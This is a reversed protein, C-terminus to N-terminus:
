SAAVTATDRSDTCLVLHSPVRFQFTSGQGVESKFAVTYDLRQAIASVIALGLGTGPRKTGDGARAQSFPKFLMRNQDESIGPGQDTVSIVIGDETGSIGIRVSAGKPSYKIANSAFNTVIQAIREPNGMVVANQLDSEIDLQVDNELAAGAILEVTDNVCEVIDMESSSFDMKNSNIKELDLIDNVISLLRDTNRAAIDIVSQTNSDLESVAGAKLLRLAGHISTLPTRLEHSVTSVTQVKEAQSSKRTSIDRLVSVFFDGEDPTRLLRTSVEIPGTHHVLELTIADQEGLLLPAAARSFSKTDFTASTDSICKARAEDLTWGHRACAAANMYRIRLTDTAYVYVGDQLTELVKELFPLDTLGNSDIGTEAPGSGKANCEQAHANQQM